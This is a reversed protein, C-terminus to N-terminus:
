FYNTKMRKIVTIKEEPRSRKKNSKEEFNIYEEIEEKIKNDIVIPKPHLTFNDRFNQLANLLIQNVNFSILIDNYNINFSRRLTCSIDLNNINEKFIIYRYKNDNDLIETIFTLFRDINSDKIAFIVEFGSNFDFLFHYEDEYTTYTINLSNVEVSM